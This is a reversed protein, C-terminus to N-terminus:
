RFPQHEMLRNIVGEVEAVPRAEVLHAQGGGEDDEWRDSGNANVVMRGRKVTYWPGYGCVGVLVATEDWSSRGASDEAALPISLGFVDKVPDGRVAKDAVLPLGCKIKVGIEFGSLLVPTPWGGFVVQSAASDKMVNFEWGEPFKGAMSVLQRVKRRVLEMGSLASYGDPGSQLLGALNTLFGVTIIVVSHDPQRSLVKRYLKVADEAQENRVVAHPYRALISDTWHQTDRQSVGDGKPVGIPIDPRRFYTNFLNIVAAVGEYKNSAMTALIKAKGSDAFAHLLAIAGVDDYDPGMDTDFIVRVPGGGSRPGREVGLEIKQKGAKLGVEKGGYVFRGTVGTPLEVEGSIGTGIRRLKVRVMGKPHPMSGEVETLEGLAPRILVRGFGPADPMIGCITALFDYDPSASWAHCDSRTPEPKEAFTTLGIKLMQRWPGLQSYYRDGMGAAKMAQMLYFRFYFTAQQLSSDRLIKEMVVRRDGAPIADALVALIGAHQSYSSKEPTNAMEGRVKDYCARYTGRDLEAALKRCRGAAYGYQGGFYGFLEAAQRLTYAYQLSIVASHGDSAGPPEGGGFADAWDVFGWWPMPGLMGMTTDVHGEYWDLVGRVAPLFQGIFADDKRLMWYDHIMVIWWLSFPPIVQFRSSPYRGQTLGEPIRSHFFDLLAKRMLRDDGTVYLSILSQIRTDAEYQLQEYYPCDFYTEGACLRATRWGVDWIAQMSTDDSSFSAKREFPYGTYMGYLDDVQLPDDGTTIELQLYRFTRVWLPRFLRHDGGDAEFVDYNGRIEKGEIVGRDGKRGDKDVLSEAYILRIAAGKGGSVTLEPYAVTNYTQDLLVTLTTHAPIVFAGKGALMNKMGEDVASRGTDETGRGGGTWRRVLPIRQQREEMLPIGRPVLTWWNDSGSGWPSPSSVEAAVPWNKDDYGAQEWGWPYRDGEVSDGPGVVMYSHLRAGNDTSCPHYASDVAVKWRRGTNVVQEEKGDGQLVFATRNSIQAVPAYVGMNWVLAAITNEGARLYGAIDVTEFNWHELDGRAPGSCVAHGNVWLRYRNDASVHIVFAAPRGALTFSRRFHFVGYDRAGIGPCSIWSAPWGQRLLIPNIPQEQGIVNNPLWGSLCCLAVIIKHM